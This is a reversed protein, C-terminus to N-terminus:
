GSSIILEYLFKSKHVIIQLTDLAQTQCQQSM